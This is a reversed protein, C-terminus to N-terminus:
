AWEGESLEKLAEIVEARIAREAEAASQGIVVPALKGPIALLRTKCAQVASTVDRRVEDAHIYVRKKAELDFQAADCKLQLHKLILGAKSESFRIGKSEIVNHRIRWSIVDELNWKGNKGRKPFDPSKSWAVVAGRTVDLRKAIDIVSATEIV